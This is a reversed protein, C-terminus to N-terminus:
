RSMFIEAARIVRLPHDTQILDIGWEIAQLYDDVNEHRGMADSFVKIGLDHCRKILDDSLIDWSSDFAYPHLEAALRDVDDPNGLPCLARIKPNLAKLQKLYDVGQYVVTTDVMGADELAKALAEPPIDKADCYLGTRGALAQLAQDFTPVVAGRYPAGFWSGADLKAVAAADLSSFPGKANTTRNVTSDHLIYYQGDRTTRVDIEVYEVGLRIAKEFAAVTNEPVYQKAGRHCSIMVPRDAVTAWLRHAIIEEPLDTQLWDVGANVMADWVGPRDANGLVKAQVLVGHEHFWECVDPTVEGANIEVADPQWRAVWEDFGYKAHWKPMIAVRGGSEARVIALSELDDFVVVQREMGAAVIESALQAPDVDKCDLYLNLRGRALKLCEALTLLSERRYRRAFWSGADLDLLDSLRMEAVAGTGDTVRDVTADHCIVHHGDVTRRVDVEAWEIGDGILFTLAPGTNEPVQRAAGRHAMVQFPRPPTVPQFFEFASAAFAILIFCLALFPTRFRM